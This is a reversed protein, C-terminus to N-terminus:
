RGQRSLPKTREGRWGRPHDDHRYRGGARPSPRPPVSIIWATTAATIPTGALLPISCDACWGECRGMGAGDWDRAGDSAGPGRQVGCPQARRGWIEGWDGADPAPLTDWGRSSQAATVRAAASQPTPRLELEGPPAAPLVAADRWGVVAPREAVTQGAGPCVPTSIGRACASLCHRVQVILQCLLAPRVTAATPQEHHSAGGLWRAGPTSGPASGYRHQWQRGGGRAV